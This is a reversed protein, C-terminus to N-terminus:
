DGVIRSCGAIVFIRLLRPSAKISGVGCSSKSGTSDTAYSSTTFPVPNNAAPLRPSADTHRSIGKAGHIAAPETRQARDRQRGVDDLNSNVQSLREVTRDAVRHAVRRLSASRWYNELEALQLASQNFLKKPDNARMVKFPETVYFTTSGQREPAFSPAIRHMAEPNRKLGATLHNIRM